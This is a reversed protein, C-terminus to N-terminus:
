GKKDPIVKGTRVDFIFMEKKYKSPKNPLRKAYFMNGVEKDLTADLKTDDDKLGPALASRISGTCPFMFDTNRFKLWLLRGKITSVPSPVIKIIEGQIAIGIPVDSPKIMPPLNRREMKSLALALQSDEDGGDVKFLELMSTSQPNAAAAVASEQAFQTTLASALSAAKKKM